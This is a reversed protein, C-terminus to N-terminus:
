SLAAVLNSSASEVKVIKEDTNIVYIRRDADGIAIM